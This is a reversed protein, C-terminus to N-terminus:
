HATAVAALELLADYENRLEGGTLFSPPVLELWDVSRAHQELAERAEPVTGVIGFLGLDDDSLASGEVGAAAAVEHFYPINAYLSLSRRLRAYARRRGDVSGDHLCVRVMAGLEPRRGDQRRAAGDELAPLLRERLWSSTVIVNILAGDALEGALRAMGPRTVALHVPITVRPPPALRTWDRVPYYPGTAEVRRGSHASFAARLVSVYERMRHLPQTPDVGFHDRSWAPPMPGLGLVFRGACVEDVSM